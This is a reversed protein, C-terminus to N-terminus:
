ARRALSILNTFIIKVNGLYPIKLVANGIVSEPPITTEYPLQGNNNDGKTSLTYSDGAKAKSVVRHIVPEKETGKFVIIDGAKIESPPKGKLIMLDGKNFGNSMPYRSFEGKSINQEEYWEGCANWYEDLNFNEKSEFSAGCLRYAGGGGCDTSKHEMSCSVVAVIPNGTALLFSLGPYVLFKIIVFALVVNVAWSLLSNDEWLFRWIRKIAKKM